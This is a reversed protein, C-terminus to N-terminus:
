SNTDLKLPQDISVAPRQLYNLGCSIPPSVSLYVVNSESVIKGLRLVSVVIETETHRKDLLSICPAAIEKFVAWLVPQATVSGARFAGSVLSILFLLRPSSVTAVNAGQAIEDAHLPAHTVSQMCRKAAVNLGIDCVFCSM